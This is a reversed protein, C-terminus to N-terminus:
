AVIEPKIRGDEVPGRSSSAYIQPVALSIDYNGVTLVNKAVQYGSKITGFSAPYPSCSLM